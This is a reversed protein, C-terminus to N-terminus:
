PARLQKLMRAAHANQPDLELARRYSDIARQKEGGAAYAEALSDFANASRPHADANLKFVAVAVSWRKEDLLQYGLSNFESESAYYTSDAALRKYQDLAPGAGQHQLTGYFTEAASSKPLAYPKSDLINLLGTGIDGIKHTMERTNTLLVVCRRGDSSRLLLSTFGPLSGDAVLLLERAGAGAAERQVAKWGNMPRHEASGFMVSASRSTLLGSDALANSFAYLDRVTSYMGGAPGAYLEAANEYGRFTRDYGAARRPLVPVRWAMGTDKMGSPFLIREELLESFQRATVRELIAGLLLFGDNSYSFGTGPEFLLEYQSIQEVIEPLSAFGANIKAVTPPFDTGRRPFDTIDRLGATHTLLHEVTIKGGTARPYGPLYDSVKGSRAIGGSELQQFILTATFAKTISGIRFRTEPTNPINWERNALGYAQVFIVEGRDAVLVAGSFQGAAAYSGMLAAVQQTRSVARGPAPAICVLLLICFAAGTRSM